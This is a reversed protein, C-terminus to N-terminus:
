RELSPNMTTEQHTCYRRNRPWTMSGNSLYELCKSYRGHETWFNRSTSKHRHVDECAYHQMVLHLKQVRGHTYTNTNRIAKSDLPHEEYPCQVLQHKQAQRMEVHLSKRVESLSKFACASSTRTRGHMRACTQAHTQTQFTAGFGTCLNCTDM